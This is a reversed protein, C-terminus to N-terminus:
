LKRTMWKKEICQKGSHLIGVGWLEWDRDLCYWNPFFLQTSMLQEGPLMQINNPKHLTTRCVLLLCINGLHTNFDVLLSMFFNVSVQKVEGLKSRQLRHPLLHFVCTGSPIQWGSCTIKRRRIKKCSISTSDTIKLLLELLELIAHNPRVITPATSALARPKAIETQGGGAGCGGAGRM